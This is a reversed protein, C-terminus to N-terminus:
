LDKNFIMTKGEPTMNTLSAKLIMGDERVLICYEWSLFDYSSDYFGMVLMTDAEDLYYPDGDSKMGQVIPLKEMAKMKYWLDTYLVPPDRPKQMLREWSTQEKPIVSPDTVAKSTIQHTMNVIKDDVVEIRLSGGYETTKDSSYSPEATYYWVANIPEHDDKTDQPLLSLSLASITLIASVIITVIIIRKQTM